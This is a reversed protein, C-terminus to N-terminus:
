LKFFLLYFPRRIYYSWGLDRNSLELWSEVVKFLHCKLQLDNQSQFWCHTYFQAELWIIYHWSCSLLQVLWLYYTLGRFYLQVPYHIHLQLHSAMAWKFQLHFPCSNYYICIASSSPKKKKKWSYSRQIKMCGSSLLIIYWQFSTFVWMFSFQPPPGHGSFFIIVDIM